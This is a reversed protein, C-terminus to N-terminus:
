KKVIKIDVSKKEGLSVSLVLKGSINTKYDEVIAEDISVEYETSEELGVTIQIDKDSEVIFHLGNKEFELDRVNSGPVSEYILLGNRELKTIDRYTKIKYLDGLYSFDELKAKASLTYDGFNLKDNVIYILDM